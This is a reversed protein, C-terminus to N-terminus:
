LKATLSDTFYENERFHSLLVSSSVSFVPFKRKPQELTTYLSVSDFRDAAEAGSVCQLSRILIFCGSVPFWGPGAGVFCFYVFVCTDVKTQQQMVFGGACIHRFYTTIVWINHKQMHLTDDERIYSKGNQFVSLGKVAQAEWWLRSSTSQM